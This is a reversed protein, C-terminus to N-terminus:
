PVPAPRIMVAQAAYQGAYTWNFTHAVSGGVRVNGDVIASRDVGSAQRSTAGVGTAFGANVSVLHAWPLSGVMNSTATIAANGAAGAATVAIGFPTVQDVGTYTVCAVTWNTAGSLTAVLRRTGLTPAVTFWTSWRMGDSTANYSTGVQTLPQAAAGAGDDLAITTPVVVSNFPEVGLVCLLLRNAGAPTVNALTVATGSGTATGQAAHFAVGSGTATFTVPSGALGTATATLTNVGPTLGTTWATVAAVGDGATVQTGGVVSGGGGTVAFTVTEGNVGRGEADVVRVSPAIAVNTGAIVTQGDGANLEIATAPGPASTSDNCAASALMATAAAVLRTQARSLTRPRSLSRALTKTM